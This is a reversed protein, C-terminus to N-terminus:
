NELPNFLELDTTDDFDADAYTSTDDDASQDTHARHLPTGNIAANTMAVATRDPFEVPSMDGLHPSMLADENRARCEIWRGDTSQVWVSQFNYPDYKVEWKGKQPSNASKTGRLSHLEAADYERNGLAIGTTTIKRFESPLLEIFDEKTLPLYLTNTIEAAAAFMQNPSLKVAPNLRDLLSSHPRNQWEKLVWDDFLENLMYVDILDDKEVEYGRHEASRGTYGPLYQTFMTSISHFQREVIGKDTPTHPASYTVGIGFKRAASEFVESIYDRGNDMMIRRPYIFPQRDLLAAREEESLLTKQPNALQVAQRYKSRDPRNQAPTLTQALLTVHDVGKTAVLRITFAVISRTAVDIQITLIPRVVQGSPSKVMIDMPTSDVQVEMGPLLQTKKAFTRNPRNALSQRTKASGTTHKGETLAAIYRYMSPTSPLTPGTTGHRKVLEEGTLRILRSKTGTSKNVQGAIVSCLADKVQPDLNDLPAFRRAHRLDILGASGKSRFGRIKKMISTRSAPLNAARLEAIKTTVRDNQTTTELDYQPRPEDLDPHQGTLIEQIHGSWAFTIDRDAKNLSELTRATVTTVTRSAVPPIMGVNRRALESIHLDLYSGDSVKRLRLLGFSQEVFDYEGDTLQIPNTTELTSM